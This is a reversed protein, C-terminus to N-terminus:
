RNFIVFVFQYVLYALVGILIAPAPKLRQSAGVAKPFLIFFVVISPGYFIWLVIRWITPANVAAEYWRLDILGVAGLFTEPLDHLLSILSAITIAFGFASLTDEFSGKGSFLKSLLHAVGASLIWCGFMSPALMFREYSYYVDTPIALWPQLGSPAGGGITLFVYVFTYLVANIAIALLGFRLRREDAMLADFTRRPRLLTGLYYDKFSSM